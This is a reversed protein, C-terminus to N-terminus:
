NHKMLAGEIHSKGLFATEYGAKQLMDSVLPFRAPIKGEVNSVAGTTHSYMGTLMTARAPLCLANVVFGNHFTCGERGIRDMNPTQVLKNGTSSLEDWRLGEGVFCLINPKKSGDNSGEAFTELADLGCASAGVTGAIYKLVTRRTEM